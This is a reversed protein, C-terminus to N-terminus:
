NIGRNFKYQKIPIFLVENVDKCIVFVKITQNRTKEQIEILKLVEIEGINGNIKTKAILIYNPMIATINIPHKTGSSNIVVLAKYDRKLINSVKQRFTIEKKIDLVM